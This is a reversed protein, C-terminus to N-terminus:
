YGHARWLRRQRAALRQQPRADARGHAGYPRVIVVAVTGLASSAVRASARARVSASTAWRGAASRSRTSSGSMDGSTQSRACM